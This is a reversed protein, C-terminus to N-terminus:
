SLFTKFFPLLEIYANMVIREDGTHNSSRYAMFLENRIEDLSSRSKRGAAEACAAFSEFQAYSNFGSAFKVVAEYDDPDPLSDRTDHM